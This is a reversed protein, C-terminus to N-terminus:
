STSVNRYFLNSSLLGELLLMAVAFIFFWHFHHTYDTYSMTAVEAQEMGEMAQVIPAINVLGQTAQLYSGNGARATEILTAEDLTTVVANGEADTKFGAPRGYRDYLPIPAGSASGM